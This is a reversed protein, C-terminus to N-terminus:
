STSRRRRPRRDSAPAPCAGSTGRPAPGSAVRTLSSPCDNDRSSMATSSKADLAHAPVPARSRAIPATPSTASPTDGAAPVRQQVIEARQSVGGRRDGGEARGASEPAVLAQDRKGPWGEAAPRDRLEAGKPDQPSAPPQSATSDARASRARRRGATTAKDRLEGRGKPDQGKRQASTQGATSPLGRGPAGKNLTAPRATGRAGKNM